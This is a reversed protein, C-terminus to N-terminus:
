CLHKLGVANFFSSNSKKALTIEMPDNALTFEVTRLNPISKLNDILFGQFILVFIFIKRSLDVFM